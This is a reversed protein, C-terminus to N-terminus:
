LKGSNCLFNRASHRHFAKAHRMQRVGYFQLLGFFLVIGAVIAVIWNGTTTLVGAFILVASGAVWGTDLIVAIWAEAQNITARRANRFLSAAYILLSIGVGILISPMTLGLLISLPKAAIILIVGSLASFAGNAQLARRLLDPKTKQTNM